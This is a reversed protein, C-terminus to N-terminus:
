SYLEMENRITLGTKIERTADAILEDLDSCIISLESVIKDNTLPTECGNPSKISRRYFPNDIIQHLKQSVAKAIDLDRGGYFNLLNNDIDHVVTTLQFSKVLELERECDARLTKLLRIARRSGDATSNGKYNVAHIHAFPFDPDAISSGIKVGRYYEDNTNQYMETHYWYAFVVDVKRHLNKNFISICKSNSSDVEDYHRELIKLAQSRLKAIDESPLSATYPDTNPLNLALFHYRDIITLLDVDSHAQINTDTEVSGQRRYARYFHLNFEKELHMKVNDSALITRDNYKKSIPRMAELMYKINEPIGAKSFNKGTLSENLSADYKRHRVNQLRQSYNIPM